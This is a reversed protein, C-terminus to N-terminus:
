LAPPTSATAPADGWAVADMALFGFQIEDNLWHADEQAQVAGLAILLPLLHEDSPHARKAHPALQAWELLAEIDKSMVRQRVWHAFAGVYSLDSARDREILNHTMSGTCLLLVGDDRLPRLAAGMRMLERPTASAPLSVQTVPIDAQPWMFRLPVWAGHDLPRQDDLSVDFGAEGLCTAALVGVDPAGPAPYQLAYLAPPFGGFDHWTAPSATTMVAVGGHTM